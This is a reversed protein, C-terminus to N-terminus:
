PRSGTLKVEDWKWANDFRVDVVILELCHQVRGHVCRSGARSDPGVFHYKLPEVSRKM